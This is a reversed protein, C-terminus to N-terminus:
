CEYIRKKVLAVIDTNPGAEVIEKAMDLGECVYCDEISEEVAKIAQELQQILIEKYNSM